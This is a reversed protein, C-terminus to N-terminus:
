FMITYVTQNGQLRESCVSLKFVSVVLTQRKDLLLELHAAQFSLNGRTSQKQM